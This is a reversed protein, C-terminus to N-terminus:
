AVASAARCLWVGFDKQGATIRSLLVSDSSVPMGSVSSTVPEFGPRGVLNKQFGRRRYFRDSAAWSASM